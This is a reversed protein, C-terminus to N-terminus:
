LRAESVDALRVVVRLKILAGDVFIKDTACVTEMVKGGLIPEAQHLEVDARSRDGFIGGVQLPKDHQQLEEVLGPQVAMIRWGILLYTQVVQLRELVGVLFDVLKEESFGVEFLPGFRHCKLNPFTCVDRRM